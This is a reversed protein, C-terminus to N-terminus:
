TLNLFHTPLSSNVEPSRLSNSIEKGGPSLLMSYDKVEQTYDDKTKGSGIETLLSQLLSM